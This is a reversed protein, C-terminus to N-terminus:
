HAHVLDPRGNRAIYEAFLALGCRSWSLANRYPLRPAVLRRSLRYVDIGDHEIVLRGAAAGDVRGARVDRRTHIDPALMAVRHGAAQLALAQDRFYGGGSGRGGSYWSPIVVIHTRSSGAFEPQM